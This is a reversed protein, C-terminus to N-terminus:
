IPRPQTIGVAAPLPHAHGDTGAVAERGRPARVDLPSRTATAGATDAARPISLPEGTM